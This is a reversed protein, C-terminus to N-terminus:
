LTEDSYESNQRPVYPRKSIPVNHELTNASEKGNTETSKAPQNLTGDFFVRRKTLGKEYWIHIGHTKDLHTLFSTIKAFYVECGECRFGSFNQDKEVLLSHKTGIHEIAANITKFPLDNCNYCFYNVL